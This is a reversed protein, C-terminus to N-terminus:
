VSDECEEITACDIGHEKAFKGMFEVAELVTDFKMAYHPHLAVCFLDSNLNALWYYESLKLVFRM